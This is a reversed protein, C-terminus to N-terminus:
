HTLGSGQITQLLKVLRDGDILQINHAEALDTAPQTFRSTTVFIGKEAKHHVNMMGIFNQLDRSGVANGPAYRKCQVITQNGQADLGILDVGLDGSGGVHRVNRLGNQTLIKGTLEEFEKPTLILIDGLSRLRAIREQEQREQEIREQEQRAYEQQQIAIMQQQQNQKRVHRWVVFALVGTIVIGLFVQGASSSLSASITSLLGM